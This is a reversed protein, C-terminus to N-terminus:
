LLLEKIENETYFRYEQLRCSFCQSREGKFLYYDISNINRNDLEKVMNRNIIISKEIDSFSDYSTKPVLIYVMM